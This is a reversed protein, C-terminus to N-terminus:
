SALFMPVFHEIYDVYEQLEEPIPTPLPDAHGDITVWVEYKQDGVILDKHTRQKLLLTTGFVEQFNKASTECLVLHVPINTPITVSIDANACWTSMSELTASGEALEENFVLIFDVSPDETTM